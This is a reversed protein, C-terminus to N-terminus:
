EEGMAGKLADCLTNLVFVRAFHKDESPVLHWRAFESGTRVVMENVASRYDDWKDRNRWDDPTIKHQKWPVDERRKFREYQEEPSIHLWFKAIIAGHQALQEEFENIERYARTWEGRTAFGEVREVLVRGYWSRDFIIHKGDPPLRRWFRWLYHHAKEEDTPVSVPVVRLIRADMAATVRRIVGGKGAADWGEFVAVLSRDAEWAKWAWHNLEKQAEKLQPSYEDEKLKLSLDVRDLITETAGPIEVNSLEEPAPPPPHGNSQIHHQMSQLLTQGMALNRYRRDTAEILHWQAFGTDTSRIARQSVALYREYHKAYKGIFPSLYLSKERKKQDKARRKQEDKALHFWFKIILSGDDSLLRELLQIHRLQQDFAEETMDDHVHDIIPQTYWSGFMVAIRGRAPLRRWFQWHDPHHREEENTELFAHTEVGRTDLWKNLLNVVEGKGAGEVGEVIIVVPVDAERLERQSELLATQLKPEEEKFVTKSVERGLEAAEFM